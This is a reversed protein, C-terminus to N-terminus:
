MCRVNHLTCGASAGVQKHQGLGMLADGLRQCAKPWHPHRAPSLLGARAAAAQLLELCQQADQLSTMHALSTCLMHLVTCNNPLLDRPMHLKYVCLATAVATHLTAAHSYSCQPQPHLQQAATPQLQPLTSCRQQLWVQVAEGDHCTTRSGHRTDILLVFKLWAQQEARNSHSEHHTV